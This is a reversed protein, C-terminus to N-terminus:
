NGPIWDRVVFGNTEDVHVRFLANFGEEPTPAELRKYTGWIGTEPIVQNGTRQQNRQLAEGPHSRFVYGVVRFGAERAPVIYRARELIRVNTNDVVFPQKAAICAEVLLRERHRTRLMDLNIRIHSDFFNERYFTSKGTAQIGIFLVAELGPWNGM